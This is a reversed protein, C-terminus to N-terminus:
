NTRGYVEVWIPGGSGSWYGYAKKQVQPYVFYVAIYDGTTCNSGPSVPGTTVSDRAKACVSSRGYQTYTNSFALSHTHYYNIWCRDGSSMASCRLSNSWVASAPPATLLALSIFVALSVTIVRSQSRALGDALLSPMMPGAAMM